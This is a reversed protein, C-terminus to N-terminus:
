YRCLVLPQNALLNLHPHLNLLFYMDLPLIALLTCQVVLVEMAEFTSDYLHM